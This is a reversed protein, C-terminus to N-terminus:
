FVAKVGGLKGNDGEVCHINRHKDSHHYLFLLKIGELAENKGYKGKATDTHDYVSANILMSRGYDPIEDYERHNHEDAETHIHIIAFLRFGSLFSFVAAM